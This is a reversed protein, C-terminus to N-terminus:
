RSGSSCAATNSEPDLDSVRVLPEGNRAQIFRIGLSQLAKRQAGYRVCRTIRQVDEPSLFASM